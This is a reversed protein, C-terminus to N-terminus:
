ANPTLRLDDWAAFVSSVAANFADAGRPTTRWVAACEGSASCSNSIWRLSNKRQGAVDAAWHGRPSPQAAVPVSGVVASHAGVFFLLVFISLVRLLPTAVPRSDRVQFLLQGVLLDV